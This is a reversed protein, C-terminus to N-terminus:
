LRDFDLQNYSKQKYVCNHLMLLKVRCLQPDPGKACIAFDASEALCHAEALQADHAICSRRWYTYIGLLGVVGASVGLMQKSGGFRREGLLLLSRYAM